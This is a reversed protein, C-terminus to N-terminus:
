KVYNTYYLKQNLWKKSALASIRSFIENKKTGVIVGFLCKSILQGKSGNSLFTLLMRLFLEILVNISCIGLKILNSLSPSSFIVGLSYLILPLFFNIDTSFPPYPCLSFPYSFLSLSLGLFNSFNSKRVQKQLNRCEM